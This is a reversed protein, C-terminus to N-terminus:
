GLKVVNNLRKPTSSSRGEAETRQARQCDFEIVSKLCLIQNRCWLMNFGSVSLSLSTNTHHLETQLAGGYQICSLRFLSVQIAM